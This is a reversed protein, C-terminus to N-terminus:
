RWDPPASLASRWSGSKAGPRATAPANLVVQPLLPVFRVTRTAEWTGGDLATAVAAGPFSDALVAKLVALNDLHDDIALINLRDGEM